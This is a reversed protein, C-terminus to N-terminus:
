VSRRWVPLIQRQIAPSRATETVTRRVVSQDGYQDAGSGLEAVDVVLRGAEQWGRWLLLDTRQHLQQWGPDHRRLHPSELFRLRVEPFRERRTADSNGARNAIDYSYFSGAYQGLNGNASYLAGNNTIRNTTPDVVWSTVNPANVGTKSLLNSFGDYGFIQSWNGQADGAGSATILRNLTDYAYTVTEGSAVDTMSQIRGNNQTPSYNYKFHYAGSYLETLQQNVNYSRSEAVVTGSLTLLKNAANYTVGSVLSNNSQDTMTNLRGMADFGYTYTALASGGPQQPYQVSTMRGESDYSYYADLHNTYGSTLTLRKATVGGPATYSYWESYSLNHPGSYTIQSVRGATNSSYNSQGRGQGTPNMGGYTYTVRESLDETFTSTSANWGGRAIQTLEAYSDYTYQTRGSNADTKTALTGDSNYTFSVTGTEPQTVSTLRQTAPDYNWTRTQTVVNGAVTRPM